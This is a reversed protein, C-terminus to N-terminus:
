NTLVDLIDDIITLLTEASGKAIELHERQEATLETELVSDTMGSLLRAVRATIAPM